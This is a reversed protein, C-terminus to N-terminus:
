KLVGLRALAELVTVIATAVGAAIAIWNRQRVARRRRQIALDPREIDLRSNESLDGLAALLTPPASPTPIAAKVTRELELM